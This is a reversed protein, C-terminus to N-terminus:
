SGAPRPGRLSRGYSEVSVLDPHAAALQTRDLRDARRLAPLPRLRDTVAPSAGASTQDPVDHRARRPGSAHRTTTRGHGSQEVTVRGRRQRVPVSAYVSMPAISPRTANWKWPAGPETELQNREVFREGGDADPHDGGVPGAVASRRREEAPRRGVPGVVDGREGIMEADLPEGHHPQRRTPRVRSAHADTSPSRTMPAITAAPLVSM